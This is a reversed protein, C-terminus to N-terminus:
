DLTNACQWGRKSQETSGNEWEIICPHTLFTDFVLTYHVYECQGRPCGLNPGNIYIDYLATARLSDSYLTVKYGKYLNNNNNNSNSYLWIRQAEREREIRIENAKEWVCTRWWVSHQEQKRMSPRTGLMQYWLTPPEEVRQRGGNCSLMRNKAENLSVSFFSSSCPTQM